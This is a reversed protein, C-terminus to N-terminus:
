GILYVVQVRSPAPGACFWRLRMSKTSIVEATFLVIAGEDQDGSPGQNILIPRGITADEFGGAPELYLTGGQGGARLDVEAQQVTNQGIAAVDAELQEIRVELPTVFEGVITTSIRNELGTHDQLIQPSKTNASNGGKQRPM